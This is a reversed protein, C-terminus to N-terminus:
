NRVEAKEGEVNRRNEEKYKLLIPLFLISLGGDNEL